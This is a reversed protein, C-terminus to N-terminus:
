PSVSQNESTMATQYTAKFTEAQLTKSDTPPKSLIMVVPQSLLQQLRHNLQEPTLAMLFQKRLRQYKEPSIDVMNNYEYHLHKSMLQSTPTRAYVSFLNNLESNKRALLANYTKSAVGQVQLDAMQQSLHAFQASLIEAPAELSLRCQSRLFIVQCEFNANTIDNSKASAASKLTLYIAERAMDELWYHFLTQTEHVPQWPMDWLLSISPIIQNTDILTLVEENVPTLTLTPTPITRKGSLSGFLKNVQESIQRTDVNGTIYLTMADPTYWQHYFHDLSTVDALKKPSFDPDYNQLASYALRYKWWVDQSGTTMASATPDSAQLATSVVEPTIYMSGATAALWRLAQSLAAPDDVPLSLNYQTYQYSNLVPPLANPQAMVQQWLNRQQQINLASNHVLALRALLHSFGRQESSESLSGTNVILRVEVSDTSRQPTTLLQWTFGNNLKGQQWAPDQHLVASQLTFSIMALLAVGIRIIFTSGLM